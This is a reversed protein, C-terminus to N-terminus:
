GDSTVEGAKQGTLVRHAQLADFWCWGEIAPLQDSGIYEQTLRIAEALRDAHATLRQVQTALQAAGAALRAAGAELREYDDALVALLVQPTAPGDPPTEELPAGPAAQGRPDQILVLYRRTPPLMAM